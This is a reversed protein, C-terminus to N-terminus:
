VWVFFRNNLTSLVFSPPFTMPHIRFFTYYILAMTSRIFINTIKPANRAMRVPKDQVSSGISIGSGSVIGGCAITRNGISPSDTSPSIVTRARAVSLSWTSETRNKMLWSHTPVSEVPLPLSLLSYLYSYLYACYLLVNCVYTHALGWM